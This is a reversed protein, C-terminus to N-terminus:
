GRESVWPDLDNRLLVECSTTGGVSSLRPELPDGDRPPGVKLKSSHSSKLDWAVCM